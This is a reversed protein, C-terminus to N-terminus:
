GRLRVVADGAKVPRIVRMGAEQGESVESVPMQDVQLSDVKQRLSSISGQIEIWQGSRLTGKEIKVVALKVDDNYHSVVGVKEPGASQVAAAVPAAAYVPASSQAPRMTSSPGGQPREIQRPSSHDDRGEQDRRSRNPGGGQRRQGFERDRGQFRDRDNGAGDRNFGQRSSRDGGRDRGEAQDRGGRNDRAQRNGSGRVDRDRGRERNYRDNPRDGSDKNHRHPSGATKQYGAPAEGVGTFLWKLRAFFSM